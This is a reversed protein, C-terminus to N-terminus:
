KVWDIIPEGDYGKEWVYWAYALVGSKGKKTSDPEYFTIRKSFVYVKKLPTNKFFDYRNVSELFNLKLLMCVKGDTYELSKLVFEKALKFPPNTVINDRKKGDYELFDFVECGEYGRDVLDSSYVDYGHQELVKSIAGDGAACEWIEGTFKEKSLLAETAYVPTAYFDNKERTGDNKHGVISNSNLQSM